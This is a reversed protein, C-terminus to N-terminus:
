KAFQVEVDDLYALQRSPAYLYIKIKSNEPVDGPFGVNIAVKNWTNSKPLVEALSISNYVVNKDAPGITVVLNANTNDLTNMCWGEVTLTNYGKSKADGYDMEFTQSYEHLSDTYTSYFGSHAQTKTVIASADWMKLNDFDQFYYGDRVSKSKNKCSSILFLGSLITVTAILYYNRFTSM